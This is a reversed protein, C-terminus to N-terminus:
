IRNGIVSLLVVSALFHFQQINFIMKVDDLEDPDMRVFEVEPVLGEDLNQILVVLSM